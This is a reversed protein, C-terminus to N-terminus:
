RTAGDGAELLEATLGERLARRTYPGLRDPDPEDTVIREVTGIPHGGAYAGDLRYPDPAIEEWEDISDRFCGRSFDRGEGGVEIYLGGSYAQRALVNRVKSDKSRGRIVRILPATPWSNM